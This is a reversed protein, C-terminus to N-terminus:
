FRGQFFRVRFVTLAAYTVFKLIKMKYLKSFQKYEMTFKNM